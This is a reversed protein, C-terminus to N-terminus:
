KVCGGDTLEANPMNVFDTEDVHRKSLEEVAHLLNFIAFEMATVGHPPASKGSLVDRGISCSLQCRYACWDEATRPKGSPRVLRPLHGGKAKSNKSVTKTKM